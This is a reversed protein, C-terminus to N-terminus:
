QSIVSQYCRFMSTDDYRKRTLRQLLSICLGNPM